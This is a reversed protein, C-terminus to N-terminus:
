NMPNYRRILPVAPIPQQLERIKQELEEAVAELRERIAANNFSQALRRYREALQRLYGVDYMPSGARKAGFANGDIQFRMEMLKTGFLKASSM